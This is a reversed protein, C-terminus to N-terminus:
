IGWFALVQNVNFVMAANCPGLLQTPATSPCYYRRSTRKSGLTSIEGNAAIRSVPCSSYGASAWVDRSIQLDFEPFSGLDAILTAPVPTTNVITLPLYTSSGVFTAPFCAKGEAVHVSPLM